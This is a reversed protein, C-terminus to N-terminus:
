PTSDEPDIGRDICERRWFCCAYVPDPPFTRAIYDEMAFVVESSLVAAVRARLGAAQAASQALMRQRSEVAYRVFKEKRARCEDPTHVPVLGAHALLPAREAERKNRLRAQVEWKRAEEMM